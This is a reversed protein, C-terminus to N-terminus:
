VRRPAPGGHARPCPPALVRHAAHRPRDRRQQQRGPQQRGEAGRRLRGRRCRSCRGGRRRGHADRWGAGVFARRGHRRRWPQRGGVLQALGHRARQLGRSRRQAQAALPQRQHDPQAGDAVLADDVGRRAVQLGHGRRQTGAAEDDHLALVHGAALQASRQGLEAAAQGAVADTEDVDGAEACLEVAM